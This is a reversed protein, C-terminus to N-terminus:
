HRRWAPRRSVSSPGLPRGAVALARRAATVLERECGAVATARVLRLGAAGLPSEGLQLVPRYGAGPLAKEAGGGSAIWLRQLGEAQVLTTMRTVVATFLGRRRHAPLTLCNWVYAEGRAPGIELRIEGVWEPGSSLWGYATVEDDAFAAFCRCGRGLRLDVLDGEDGMATVLPAASGPLVERM